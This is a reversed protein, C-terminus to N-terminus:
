FMSAMRPQTHINEPIAWQMFQMKCSNYWYGTRHLLFWMSNLFLLSRGRHPPIDKNQFRMQINTYM